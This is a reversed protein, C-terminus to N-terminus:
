KLLKKWDNPNITAIYKLTGDEQIKFIALGLEKKLWIRAFDQLNSTHSIAVSNFGIKPKNLLISKLGNAKLLKTRKDDYMSYSLNDDIKIRNFMYMATDKARCYPSSLVKDIKINLTKLHEGITKALIKGEESLNRQTSCDSLDIEKLRKTRLTKSHRFYFSYGGKQLEQILVKDDKFSNFKILSSATLNVALVSLLIIKVLSFKNM